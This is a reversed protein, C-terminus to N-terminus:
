ITSLKNTSLSWKELIAHTHTFIVLDIPILKETSCIKEAIILFSPVHSFEGKDINVNSQNQDIKM